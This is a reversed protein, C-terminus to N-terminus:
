RARPAPQGGILRCFLRARAKARTKSRVNLVICAPREPADDISVRLCCKVTGAAGAAPSAWVGLLVLALVSCVAAARM